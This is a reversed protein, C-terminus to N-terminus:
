IKAERQILELLKQSRTKVARRFETDRQRSQFLEDALQLAAMIVLSQSAVTRSSTRAEAIKKDVYKALAKVYDEDADTKLPFKQGAVEVSVQRKVRAITGHTAM